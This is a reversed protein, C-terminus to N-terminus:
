DGTLDLFRTLDRTAFSYQTRNIEYRMAPAGDLTGVAWQGQREQTTFVLKLDGLTITETNEGYEVTCQGDLSRNKAADYYSCEGALAPTAVALLSTAALLKRTLAAPRTSTAQM